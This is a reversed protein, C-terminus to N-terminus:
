SEEYLSKVASIFGSGSKSVALDEKAWNSIKDRNVQLQPLKDKTKKICDVTEEINNPNFILGNKDNVLDFGAGVKKSCLVFLGSALAENVVLGWVDYFSPFIFIDALAYYKPLEEQQHFEEFFVNSLKNKLCFKKLLSKEPGDGVIIFGIESDNLCSLAKLIQGLGKKKTLRGVYLLLCRPYYKREKEFNKSHQYQLVKNRFYETDVTNLCIHIHRSDAGLYELYEKAKTGYAICKDTGQVMIRKMIGRIGKTSGTNLLTTGNWLIFKKKFLKSYLFAQWCALFTYGSVVVVDPNYRWLTQFVGRNLHIPIEKNQIFIHWGPLIQYDFKIKDKAIKWERNKENEALFVAKFKFDVNKAVYNFLPIRYPPIINTILIVKPKKM